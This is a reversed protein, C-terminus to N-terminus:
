RWAKDEDLRRSAIGVALEWAKKEMLRLATGTVLYARRRWGLRIRRMRISANIDAVLHLGLPLFWAVLAMGLGAKWAHRGFLPRVFWAVAKGTEVPPSLRTFAIGLLAWAALRGTFPLAQWFAALWGGGAQWLLYLYLLVFWIATFIAAGRTMAAAEATRMERHLYFLCLLAIWPILCWPPLYQIFFSGALLLALKCRADLRRVPRLPGTDRERPM